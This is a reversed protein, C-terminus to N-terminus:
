WEAQSSNGQPDNSVFIWCQLAIWGMRRVKTRGQTPSAQRRRVCILSIALQLRLLASGFPHIATNMEHPARTENQGGVDSLQSTVEIIPGSNPTNM